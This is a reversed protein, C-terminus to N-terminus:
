KEIFEVSYADILTKNAQITYYKIKNDPAICQITELTNTEPELYEVKVQFKNLEALLSQEIAADLPIIGVKLAKKTNIYNVNMNGAANTRQKYNHVTSVELANVYASFDIDNLKFYAM